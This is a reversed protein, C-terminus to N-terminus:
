VGVYYQSYNKFYQSFGLWNNDNSVQSVKTSNTVSVQTPDGKIVWSLSVGSYLDFAISPDQNTLKNYSIQSIEFYKLENNKKCFYRMFSGNQKEQDTPLTLYFSPIERTKSTNVNNASTYTFDLEDYSYTMISPNQIFDSNESFALPQIPYLLYNPTDSPTKGTFLQGTSTKFYYGIYVNSANSTQNEVLTFEEGNTYLNTKIQSKPYYAM